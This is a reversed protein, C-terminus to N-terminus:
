RGLGFMRNEIERVKKWFTMIDAEVVLEELDAILHASGSRPATDILVQIRTRMADRGDIGYEYRSISKLERGVDFLWLDRPNNSLKARISESVSRLVARREDDQYTQSRRLENRQAEFDPPLYEMLKESSDAHYGFELWNLHDALYNYVIVGRVWVANGGITVPSFTSRAAARRSASILLPHGSAITTEAVCGRPDILVRVQVSGHARVHRAALPYEPKVLHIARANLVGFSVIHVVKPKRPMKNASCDFTSRSNSDDQSRVITLNAFAICLVFVIQISLARCCKM